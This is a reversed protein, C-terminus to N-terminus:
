SFAQLASSGASGNIVSGNALDVTFSQLALEASKSQKRHM